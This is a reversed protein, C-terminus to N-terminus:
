SMGRARKKGAAAPADGAVTAPSAEIGLSKIDENIKTFMNQMSKLNRGPMNIMNWQVGRGSSRERYHALIRIALEYQTFLFSLTLIQLEISLHSSVYFDQAAKSVQDDKASKKTPTSNEM